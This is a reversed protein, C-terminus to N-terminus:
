LTLSEILEIVSRDPVFNLEYFDIKKSIWEVLELTQWLKNRSWVPFFIHPLIKKYIIQTESLKKIQNEKAPKIFFAGILRGRENSIFEKETYWPLGYIFAVKKKKRVAIRDDNLIVAKKNYQKFLKVITSKGSGSPGIFVYCGKGVKISSAHMFFGSNESILNVLLVPGIPYTLPNRHEIPCIKNFYLCAKDKKFECIRVLKGNYTNLGDIILFDKGMNYIQWYGDANFLDSVFDLHNFEEFPLIEITFSKEKRLYTRDFFKTFISPFSHYNFPFEFKIIVDVIRFKLV